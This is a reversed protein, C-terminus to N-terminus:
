VTVWTKFHCFILSFCWVHVFSKCGSWLLLCNRMNTDSHVHHLKNLKKCLNHCKQLTPQQQTNRQVILINCPALPWLTGLHGMFSAIQWVAQILQLATQVVSPQDTSSVERKKKSEQCQWQTEDGYGSSLLPTNWTTNTHTCFAHGTQKPPPNPHFICCTITLMKTHHAVQIKHSCMANKHHVQPCFM